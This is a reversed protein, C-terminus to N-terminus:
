FIYLVENGNVLYSNIVLDQERNAATLGNDDLGAAFLGAMETDKFTIRIKAYMEDPSQMDSEIYGNAWWHPAYDTSFMSSGNSKYADIQLPLWNEESPIYYRNFRSESDFGTGKPLTYVLTDSGAMRYGYIGKYSTIQWDNEGYTFNVVIKELSTGHSDTVISGGSSYGKEKEAIDRDDVYYFNGKRYYGLKDAVSVYLESASPTYKATTTPKLKTFAATTAKETRVHSTEAPKAENETSQETASAKATEETASEFYSEAVTDATTQMNDTERKQSCGFLLLALALATIIKISKM